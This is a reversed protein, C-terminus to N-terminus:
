WQEVLMLYDYTTGTCGAAQVAKRKNLRVKHGLLSHREGRGSASSASVASRTQGTSVQSAGVACAAAALLTISLPSM